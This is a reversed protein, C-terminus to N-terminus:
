GRRKVARRSRATRNAARSRVVTWIMLILQSMAAALALKWGAGFAERAEASRAAAPGVANSLLDRVPALLLDVVSWDAGDSYSGTEALSTRARAVAERRADRYDVALMVVAIAEALFLPWILIRRLRMSTWAGFVAGLAAVAFVARGFTMGTVAESPRWPLFAALLFAVAIWFMAWVENFVRGEHLASWSSDEVQLAPKPDNVVPSPGGSEHDAM